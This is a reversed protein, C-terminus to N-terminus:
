PSRQLSARLIACVGEDGDFFAFADLVKHGVGPLLDSFGGIGWPQESEMYEAILAADVLCGSGRGACVEYDSEDGGHGAAQSPGSNAVVDIPNSNPMDYVVDGPADVV